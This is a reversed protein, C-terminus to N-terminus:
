LLISWHLLKLFPLHGRLLTSFLLFRGFVKLDLPGSRHVASILLSPGLHAKLVAGLRRSQLHVPNGDRPIGRDPLELSTMRGM